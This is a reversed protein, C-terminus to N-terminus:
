LRGRRRQEARTKTGHCSSCLTQLNADDDTGGEELPTIHDVHATRGLTVVGCTRCVFADRRLIRLRRARWDATHYHAVEKTVTTRKMTQPKWREVRDPM